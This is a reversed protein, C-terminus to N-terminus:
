LYRVKEFRTVPLLPITSKHYNNKNLDFKKEALHNKVSIFDVPAPSGVFLSTRKEKYYSCVPKNPFHMYKHLGQKVISAVPISANLM